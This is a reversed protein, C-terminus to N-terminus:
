LLVEAREEDIVVALTSLLWLSFWNCGDPLSVGVELEEAHDDGDEEPDEGEGGGEGGDGDPLLVACTEQSRFFLHKKERQTRKHVEGVQRPYGQRM